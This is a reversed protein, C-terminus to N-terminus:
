PQADTVLGWYFGSGQLRLYAERPLFVAGTNSNKVAPPLCTNQTVEGQKGLLVKSVQLQIGGSELQHTKEM